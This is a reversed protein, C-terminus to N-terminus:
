LVQSSERRVRPAHGAVLEVQNLLPKLRVIPLGHGVYYTGANVLQSNVGGRLM